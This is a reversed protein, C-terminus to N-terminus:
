TPLEGFHFWDDESLSKLYNLIEDLQGQKEAWEIHERFRMVKEIPMSSDWAALILPLPPEWGGSPKQRKNKLRQYFGNWDKPIARNNQQCYDWVSEFTIM